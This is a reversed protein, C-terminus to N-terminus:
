AAPTLLQPLFHASALRRTAHRAPQLHRHQHGLAVAHPRTRAQLQAYLGKLHDLVTNESIGLDRAIQANTMGAAVAHLIETKRDTLVLPERPEPALAALWGERYALDILRAGNPVQVRKMLSVRRQDLTKFRTGTADAIQRLRDGRALGALLPVEYPRLVISM